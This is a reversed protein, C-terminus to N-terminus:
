GVEPMGHFLELGTGIKVESCAEEFAADFLLEVQALEYLWLLQGDKVRYRLRAALQYREGSRFVPIALLFAGPVKLPAGREDQHETAFTMDTEGTGLNVRNKVTQGVRLSLGRSLELLKTPSALTCGIKGAFSRTREEADHPECVDPIRNELFEAFQAQPMAVGDHTNWERWENSMPFAYSVRHVGFRPHVTSGHSPQNYDIIALLKPDDVSSRDAFVVSEINKHRNVHDIFSALTQMTATGRAREPKDRYEDLLPKISQLKQGQPGNLLVVTRKDGIYDTLEFLKAEANQAIDAVAQAETLKADSM